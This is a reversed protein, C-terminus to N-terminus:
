GGETQVGKAPVPRPAASSAARVTLWWLLGYVVILSPGEGAIWYWPMGEQSDLTLLVAGFAVSLLAQLRILPLYRPVDFSMYLYVVGAFAYMGSLSRALYGVIPRDPLEGLGLRQHVADMWVFPMLVAGTALLLVVGTLRTLLRVWWEARRADV